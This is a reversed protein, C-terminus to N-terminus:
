PQNNAITTSSCTPKFSPALAQTPSLEPRLLLPYSLLSSAPQLTPLQESAGAVFSADCM